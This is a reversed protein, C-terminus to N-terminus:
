REESKLANNTNVIDVLVARTDTVFDLLSSIYKANEEDPTGYMAALQATIAEVMGVMQEAAVSMEEIVSHGDTEKGHQDTLLTTLGIQGIVKNMRMTQISQALRKVMDISAQRMVAVVMEADEVERFNVRPFLARVNENTTNEGTTM